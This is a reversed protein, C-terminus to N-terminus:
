NLLPQSGDCYRSIHGVRKCNRCIPRGDQDWENRQQTVYRYDAREQRRRPSPSRPRATRRGATPSRGRARGDESTLLPRLQRLEATLGQIQKQVDGLIEEKLAERWKDAQPPNLVPTPNIARCAIEPNRVSAYESELEKAEGRLAAFDSDPNRRAYTRLAQQLPGEALGLLLQDRLAGDSPATDPDLQRLACFLERLRLIYAQASEGVQQTCSYFKSRIQAVTLTTKYLQDLYAFIKTTSNREGEDLVSVQRRADGTLTNWLIDVKKAESVDQTGLLGKLQEKWERYKGEGETGEFRPLWPAGPYLPMMM